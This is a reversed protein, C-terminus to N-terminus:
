ISNVRSDVTEEKLICAKVALMHNALMKDAISLGIIVNWTMTTDCSFVKHRLQSFSPHSFEVFMLLAFGLHVEERFCVTQVNSFLTFLKKLIDFAWSIFSKLFFTWNLENDFNSMPNMSSKSNVNKIMTHFFSISLFIFVSFFTPKDVDIFNSLLIDSISSSEFSM